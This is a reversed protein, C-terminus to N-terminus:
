ERWDEVKSRAQTIVHMQAPTWRPFGTGLDIETPDLQGLILVTEVLPEVGNDDFFSQVDQEIDAPDTALDGIQLQPM